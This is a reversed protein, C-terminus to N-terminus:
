QIVEEEERSEVEKLREEYHIFDYIWNKMYEDPIKALPQYAPLGRITNFIEDPPYNAVMAWSSLQYGDVFWAAFDYGKQGENIKGMVLDAVAPNGLMAALPTSASSPAQPPPPSVPQPLAAMGSPSPPSVPVPMMSGHPTPAGAGGGMTMQMLLPVLSGGIDILKDKWDKPASDAAVAPQPQEDIAEAKIRSILRMTSSLQAIPDKTAQSTDIIKTMLETNAKKIEENQKMLLEVITNDPKHEVPKLNDITKIILPMFTKLMDGMTDPKPELMKAMLLKLLDNDQKPQNDKLLQFTDIFNKNMQGVLETLDTQSQMGPEKKEVKILKGELGRKYEGSALLSNIYGLNNKDGMDLEEINIKPPNYTSDIEWVVDFAQIDKSQDRVIMKYKGGGHNASFNTLSWNDVTLQDIYAHPTKRIVPNIRYLFIQVLQRSEDDTIKQFWDEAQNITVRGGNKSSPYGPLRIAGKQTKTEETKTTTEPLFNDKETELEPM